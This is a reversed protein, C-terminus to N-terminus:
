KRSKYVQIYKLVTRPDCGGKLYSITPRLEDIVFCLVVNTVIQTMLSAVAAGTIGWIPILMLNLAINGLAGILNIKWLIGHKKKALIWINRVSGIYSFTTYWVIWRLPEVASTYAEGYLIQIITPAFLAIAVCQLLSLYIIVSYLATLYKSFRVENKENEDLIVPRMSSIIASFVFGTLGACAVAASYFGTQSDGLMMKIMIRDTNAFITVMMSSVIYHKSQSFMRKAAHKSFSLKGNKSFLYLIIADILFIDLASTVAFWYISSQNILLVIQYASKALYALLTAISVYKSKLHAQFWFQVMEVAHALLVISYLICVVLTVPENPNALLTFAALGLMCLLGSILSMVMATGLTEGEREPYNILENVLIANLGLQAIPTVFAVLSSAYNVLGYNGPGLYRATLMTILVGLVSQIVKGGIIWAANSAVQRNKNM